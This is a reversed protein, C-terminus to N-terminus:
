LDSLPSQVRLGTAKGAELEEPTSHVAATGIGVSRRGLKKDLRNVCNVELCSACGISAIAHTRHLAKPHLRMRPATIKSQTRVPSCSSTNNKCVVIDESQRLYFTALKFTPLLESLVYFQIGDRDTTLEFGVKGPYGPRRLRQHPGPNQERVTTTILAARRNGATLPHPVAPSYQVRRPIFQKERICCQITEIM